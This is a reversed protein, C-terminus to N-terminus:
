DWGGAVNKHWMHSHVLRRMIDKLLSVNHIEFIDVKSTFVLPITNLLLLLTDKSVSKKIPTTFVYTIVKSYNM